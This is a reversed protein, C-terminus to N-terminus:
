LVDSLSDTNKTIKITIINEMYLPRSVSSVDRQLKLTPVSSPASVDCEDDDSQQQVWKQDCKVKGGLVDANM